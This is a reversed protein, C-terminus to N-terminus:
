ESIVEKHAWRFEVAASAIDSREKASTMSARVAGRRLVGRRGLEVAAPNKKREAVISVNTGDVQGSAIDM